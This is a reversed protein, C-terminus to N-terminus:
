PGSVLWIVCYSCVSIYSLDVGSSEVDQIFSLNAVTSKQPARRRRKRTQGFSLKGQNAMVKSSQFALSIM